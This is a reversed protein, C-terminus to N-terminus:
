SLEKQESVLLPKRERQYLLWANNICIGLMQAFISLYWRHTKLTIRYLSVLMDMLDVGGMHANFQKVINPCPVEVKAKQNKDYRKATTVPEDSVYTSVLSM